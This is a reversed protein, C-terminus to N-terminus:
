KLVSFLKKITLNENVFTMKPELIFKTGFDSVLHFPYHIGFETILPKSVAMSVPEDLRNFRYGM